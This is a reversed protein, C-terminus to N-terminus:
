IGYKKCSFALRIANIYMTIAYFNGKRAMLFIARFPLIDM